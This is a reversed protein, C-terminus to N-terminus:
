VFHASRAGIAVGMSYRAAIEIAYLRESRGAAGATQQFRRAGGVRTAPIAPWQTSRTM